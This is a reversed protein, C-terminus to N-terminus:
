GFGGSVPPINACACATSVLGVERLSTPLAAPISALPLAAQFLKTMPLGTVSSSRTTCKSASKGADYSISTVASSGLVFVQSSHCLQICVTLFMGDNRSAAQLGSSDFYFPAISALILDSLCFLTQSRTSKGSQYWWPMRSRYGQPPKWAVVPLSQQQFFLAGPICAGPAYGPPTSPTSSCGWGTQTLYVFWVSIYRITWSLM